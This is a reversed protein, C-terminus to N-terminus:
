EEDIIERIKELLQSTEFPKRIFGKAGTEKTTFFPEFIHSLIEKDVGQGTDSITLLVYSGLKVGIHASCYEEDLQVNVRKRGM